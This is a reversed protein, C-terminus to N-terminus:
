LYGGRRCKEPFILPTIQLSMTSFDCPCGRTFFNFNQNEGSKWCLGVRTFNDMKSIGACTDGKYLNEAKINENCPPVRINLKKKSMKVLPFAKNQFKLNENILPVSTNTNWLIVIRWKKIIKLKKRYLFIMHFNMIKQHSKWKKSLFYCLPLRWKEFKAGAQENKSSKKNWKM